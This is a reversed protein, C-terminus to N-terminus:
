ESVPHPNDSAAICFIPRVGTGLRQGYDTDAVQIGTADVAIFRTTYNDYAIGVDTGVGYGTRLKTDSYVNRLWYGYGNRILAPNYLFLPLKYIEYNKGFSAVNRWSTPESGDTPRMEPTPSYSLVAQEYYEIIGYEDFNSLASHGFICEATPLNVKTNTPINYAKGDFILPLDLIHNNGFKEIVIDQAKNLAGYDEDYYFYDVTIETGSPLYPIYPRTETQYDYRTPTPDKDVNGSLTILDSAIYYYRNYASYGVEYYYSCTKVYGTGLNNENEGYSTPTWKIIGPVLTGDTKPVNMRALIVPSTAPVHQLNYTFEHKEGLAPEYDVTFTEQCYRYGRMSSYTYFNYSNNAAVNGTSPYGKNSLMITPLTDGLSNEYTDEIICEDPMIVVHNITVYTQDVEGTGQYYNFGAIRWHIGENPDYWYDGIFMDDFSGNDIAAYQAATPATGLCEGRYIANHAGANPEAVITSGNNKIENIAGVVTKNNTLLNSFSMHNFIWSGINALTSKKSVFTSINNETNIASVEVLEEGTPIGEELPLESTRITNKSM